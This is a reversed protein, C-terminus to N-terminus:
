ATVGVAFIGYPYALERAVKKKWENSEKTFNDLTITKEEM